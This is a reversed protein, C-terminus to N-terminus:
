REDTFFSVGAETKFIELEQDGFIHTVWKRILMKSCAGLYMKNTNNSKSSDKMDVDSM